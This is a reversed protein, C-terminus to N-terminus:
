KYEKNNYIFKNNKWDIQQLHSKGDKDVYIVAFGNRWTEKQGKSMYGFVPYDKEGCWGINHGTLNGETFSNMRHTHVFAVNKKLKTAHAHAPHMNTWFGHMLYIDGVIVEATKWNEQVNYGRDELHLAETPSKIVGRGLKSNNVDSMYTNYREEHNGWMFEKAVNPAARDFANLLKNAEQYEKTLTLGEISVKNRGYSSISFMDLIDGMLVHGRLENTKALDSLLKIYAKALKVNHFPMHWCGSVLYYGSQKYVPIKDSKILKTIDM